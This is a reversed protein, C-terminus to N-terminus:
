HHLKSHLVGAEVTTALVNACIFRNAYCWHWTCRFWEINYPYGATQLFTKGMQYSSSLQWGVRMKHTPVLHYIIMKPDYAIQNGTKRIRQQLETEGGYWRHLAMCVMNPILVMM